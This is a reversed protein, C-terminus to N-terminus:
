PLLSDLTEGPVPTPDYVYGMRVALADTLKYEGGFRLALVDNWNKNTISIPNAPNDSHVILQDFSSWGTWQLDFELALGDITNNALGISFFAPMTIDTTASSDSLAAAVATCTGPGLFADYPCASSPLTYNAEGGYHIQVPSRFNIGLTNNRSVQILAGLNYGWGDGDAVGLDLDADAWLPLPIKQKLEVTSYAYQIGAAVTIAPHLKFALNPNFFFTKIDVKYSVYRGKWDQPWETSLGLHSFAGFGVGIRDNVLHTGYFHPPFFLPKDADTETGSTGSDLTGFAPSVTSTGGDTFTTLPAILTTGLMFQTGELQAIGAPNHFVTSPDNGRAVVAEGQGMAATGQEPIYFGAALVWDSEIVIVFVLTVLTALIQKM